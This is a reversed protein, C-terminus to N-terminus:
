YSGDSNLDSYGPYKAFQTKDIENLVPCGLGNTAADVASGLQDMAPSIDSYLGSLIDPAEQLSAELGFCIANNGQLLSSASFVGGTLNAPDVGVFSNTTGTNGGVSLFEPYALAMALQDESFYPITYYDVLNRKYWNDPFKENGPTYVFNPYDGTVSYFSKLTEGDLLGEPYEASKNAMFRYIFSWAAPSAVVGSFPANFFYPNNAISEHFRTNRYQTLVNLDVSDGNAQGLEYIATFQPLQVLYDNGSSPTLIPIQNALRSHSM